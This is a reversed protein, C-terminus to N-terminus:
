LHIWPNLGDSFEQSLPISLGAGATLLEAWPPPSVPAMQGGTGARVELLEVSCDTLPALRAIWIEFSVNGLSLLFSQFVALHEASAMM